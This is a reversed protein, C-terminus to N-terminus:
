EGVAFREAQRALKQASIRRRGFHASGTRALFYQLDALFVDRDRTDLGDAGVGHLKIKRIPVVGADIRPLKEIVIAEVLFFHPPAVELAHLFRSRAAFRDGACELLTWLRLLPCQYISARGSVDGSASAPTGTFVM